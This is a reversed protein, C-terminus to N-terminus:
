IIHNHSGNTVPEVNMSKPLDTTLLGAIFVSMSNLYQPLTFTKNCTHCKYHRLGHRIGEHKKLQNLQLFRESCTGCEYRKIRTHIAEHRTLDYKSLFRKSCLACDYPTDSKKKKESNNIQSSPSSNNSDDNEDNICENKQLPKLSVRLVELM